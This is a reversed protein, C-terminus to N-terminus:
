ICMRLFIILKSSLKHYVIHGVTCPISLHLCLFIFKLKQISYNNNKHNSGKRKWKNERQRNTQHNKCIPPFTPLCLHGFPLTAKGPTLAFWQMFWCVHSNWLRAAEPPNKFVSMSSSKLDGKYLKCPIRLMVGESSGVSINSFKLRCSKSQFKQINKWGCSQKQVEVPVPLRIFQIALAWPYHVGLRGLIFSIKSFFDGSISGGSKFSSKSLSLLRREERLFQAWLAKFLKYFM